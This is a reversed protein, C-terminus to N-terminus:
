TSLRPLELASMMRQIFNLVNLFAFVKFFFVLLERGKESHRSATSHQDLRGFEQTHLQRAQHSALPNRILGLRDAIEHALADEDFTDMERSERTSRDKQPGADLLEQLLSTM